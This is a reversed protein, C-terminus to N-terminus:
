LSILLHIPCKLYYPHTISLEEMKYLLARYSVKLLKSAKTRNWGTIEFAYEILIKKNSKKQEKEFKKLSLSSLDPM